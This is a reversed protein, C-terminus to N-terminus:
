GRRPGDSVIDRCANTNMAIVGLVKCKLHGPQTVELQHQAKGLQGPVVRTNVPGPTGEGECGREAGRGADGGGGMGRRGRESGGGERRREKRGGGNGGWIGKKGWLDGRLVVIVQIDERILLGIGKGRM